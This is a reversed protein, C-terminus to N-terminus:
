ERFGHQKFECLASRTGLLATNLSISHGRRGQPDRNKLEHLPRKSVLVTETGVCVARHAWVYPERHGRLPTETGVCVARQTWSSPDRHGCMCSKTGVFLHRQAWVYPERHGRHPTETGVCVARQARSSPDRHGRLSSKTGACQPCQASSALEIPPHFRSLNHSKKSPKLPM